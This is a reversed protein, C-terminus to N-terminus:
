KHVIKGHGDVMSFMLNSLSVELCQIKLSQVHLLCKRQRIGEINTTEMSENAYSLLTHLLVTPPTILLYAGLM